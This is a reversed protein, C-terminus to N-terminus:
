CRVAATLVGVGALYRHTTWNFGATSGRSSSAVASRAIGEEAASDDREAGSEVVARQVGFDVGFGRHDACVAPLDPRQIGGLFAVPIFVAALICAIAVVPGSVEAMAHM